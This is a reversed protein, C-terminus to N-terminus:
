HRGSSEIHWRILRAECMLFLRNLVYGFLAITFIGAYMEPIRFTRQALLIFYGLGDSSVIMEGLIALILAIALSIRMGTLIQPSAAIKPGAEAVRISSLYFGWLGGLSLIGLASWQITRRVRSM